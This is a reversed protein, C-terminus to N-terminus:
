FSYGFVSIDNKYWNSILEKTEEDYYLQYHDRKTRNLHKLKVDIGIVKALNEFDQELDEFKLIFDVNVIDDYDVIWSTQPQFMKPKDYYIHNRKKYVEHCWEKFSINLVQLDSQNTKVRYHYLSVVRDWPNRIVAISKTQNWESLTMKDILEKCTLHTKDLGLANLISTGGTKNIHIFSYNCSNISVVIKKKKKLEFPFVKTM